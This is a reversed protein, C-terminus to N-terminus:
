VQAYRGAYQRYHRILFGFSEIGASLKNFYAVLSIMLRKNKELNIFFPFILTNYAGWKIGDQFWGCSM